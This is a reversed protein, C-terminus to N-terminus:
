DRDHSMHYMSNVHDGKPAPPLHLRLRIQLIDHNGHNETVMNPVIYMQDHIQILLYIVTSTPHLAILTVVKKIIITIALSDNPRANPDEITISPLSM